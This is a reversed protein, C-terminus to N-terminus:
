NPPSEPAVHEFELMGEEEIRADQLKRALQEVIEAVQINVDKNVDFVMGGYKKSEDFLGPVCDSFWIPIVAKEGFRQRFNDSEFKTWIKKPYSTSLLPVIFRAESNYIPALYDEVNEALIRHQENKDYFVAIDTDILHSSLKEAIDRNEGAFSLAFDYKSKFTISIYGVQRAFKSWLINQIYFMFKPDEITLIRSNADFHIVDQLTENNKILATLYGKDVVQLISGKQAPYQRIIDDIQITWNDSLSLWRLLHLYPARGERKLKSGISFTRAKNYFTRGFEDLVKEKIVSLSVRIETLQPQDQLVGDYTCLENCLYQVIHFSGKSLVVLEPKTNFSINLIDEGKGILEEIKNDPNREFKITDVRNNLDPALQILSDGAKNIGILILKDNVREEDALVKMYDAISAKLDESLVHFDDVIVTGIGNCSPLTEIFERDDKKRASLKCVNKNLRLEELAKEICTTKGIGSPGEIILGRGHTRLAVIINNFESPRVFTYTPVGSKKFVDQLFIPM